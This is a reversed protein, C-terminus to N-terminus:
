NKAQRTLRFCPLHHFTRKKTSKKGTSKLLLLNQFIIVFSFNKKLQLSMIDAERDM